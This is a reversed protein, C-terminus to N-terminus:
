RSALSESAEVVGCAVRAGANGTPQGGDDPQAHVIVARGIVTPQEGDISMTDIVVRHHVEGNEDAEINGMDGAHRAAGDPLAHPHGEPNYHDGASTADPASCDGVEHVHFGHQSSPPLGTLDVQVALGEGTQEFRVTGAVENGETPQMQAEAVATGPAQLATSEGGGTTDEGGAGDAGGGGCGAFVFCLLTVLLRGNQHHHM